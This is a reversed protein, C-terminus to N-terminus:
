SGKVAPPEYNLAVEEGASLGSVVAADTLNRKGVKVEREVFQAGQKVYALLKGAEQRIAGLPVVAAAETQDVKVDAGASLDPILRPDWQEVAIRVPISRIYANQRSGAVAIAGISYIKGRFKSGPFADLTISAEQGIRFRDSEAQNINAEVQMSQPKVIKAVLQGPFVQDGESLSVFEGSRFLSQIVVLGDMQATVVFRTLDKKHRDRHRTHRERTYDLIKLESAQSIKKLQTEALLEKYAAEAEEVSLKILEQDIATRVETAKADTRIKDLEAKALRVSQQLNEWEIAQEAQRKKIDAEAQVVTSHV